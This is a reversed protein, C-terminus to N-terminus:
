MPNFVQSLAPPEGGGGRLVPRYLRANKIWRARRQRIRQPAHERRAAFQVTRRIM